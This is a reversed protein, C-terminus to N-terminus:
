EIIPVTAPSLSLWSFAALVPEPDGHWDLARLQNISRRGTAARLLTFAEGKLTVDAPAPGLRDGTTTVLALAVGHSAATEVLREGAFALGITVADTDRAGPQGLAGRIDHEHSVVDVVAQHGIPGADALLPEITPADRNWQDLLDSTPTDRREAVQRATWEDTGAGDLRGALADQIGGCLHAVVDHITWAPCAPVATSQAIGPPLRSVIDSIRCRAAAYAPAFTDSV